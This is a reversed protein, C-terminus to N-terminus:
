VPLSATCGPYSSCGWFQSGAKSGRRATRVVMPMGCAPCAPASATQRSRDSPDSRDTQDAQHEQKRREQLRAAHLQESYGGAVVFQRELSRIQRDLLHNAQHILCILTNAAIEATAKEILPRYRDYLTTASRDTQATQDSWQTGM